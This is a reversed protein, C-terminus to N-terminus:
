AKYRVMDSWKDEGVKALVKRVVGRCVACEEEEEEEEGDEEAMCPETKLLCTGIIMVIALMMMMWVRIRYAKTATRRMNM